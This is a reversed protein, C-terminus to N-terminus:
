GAPHGRLLAALVPNRIDAAFMTAADRDDDNGLAANHLMARVTMERM